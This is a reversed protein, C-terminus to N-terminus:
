VTRANELQDLNVSKHIFSCAGNAYSRVVHTERESKTLTIVSLSQLRPEKKMGELMKYVNMKPMNIDLLVIDPV